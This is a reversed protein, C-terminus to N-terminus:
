SVPTAVPTGMDTAGFIVACAIRDGSNGSPDTVLDDADAHIVLAAGDADALSNAAGPELTVTSTTVTVMASGDEAVVINGLDGAHSEVDEGHDHAMPTSGDDAVTTAEGPGHVTTEPNFHGGASDFPPDAEPDCVGVAHVHIGHEGPEMGSVDIAFSVAGDAEAVEVEGLVGGDVGVLPLVPNGEMPTADQALATAGGMGMALAATAVVTLRFGAGIRRLGFDAM